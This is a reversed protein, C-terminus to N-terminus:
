LHLSPIYLLPEEYCGPPGIGKNLPCSEKISTGGQPLPLLCLCTEGKGRSNGPSKLRNNFPHHVVKHWYGRAFSAGHPFALSVSAVSAGYLSFVRMPRRLGRM